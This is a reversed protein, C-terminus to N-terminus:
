LKSALKQADMRIKQLDEETPKGRIDGMRGKTSREESGHFESLVYWEDLVTFGLHEFFQGVYKGVPTAENLGTHPGSYTCFILANKRPVKPAGTKIKGQKRYDDFKKLLFETVQKPPHWQISPSGLCVLDYDFYDIDETETTKIVSVNVGAAELGDKLAFAVKETNGTSSWYLIVARTLASERKKKHLISVFSSTINSKTKL